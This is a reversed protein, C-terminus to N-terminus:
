GKEIVIIAATAAREIVTCSAYRDPSGVPSAPDIPIVLDVIQGAPLVEDFNSSTVATTGWKLFVDKDSALCRLWSTATQFDIQTSSSITTDLTRALAAGAPALQIPSGSADRKLRPKGAAM